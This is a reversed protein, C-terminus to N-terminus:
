RSKSKSCLNQIRWNSSIGLKGRITKGSSKKYFFFYPDKNGPPSPFKPEFFPFFKQSFSPRFTSFFSFFDRLFSPGFPFPPSFKREKFAFALSFYLPFPFKWPKCLVVKTPPVGILITTRNQKERVPLIKNWKTKQNNWSWRSRKYSHTFKWMSYAPNCAISAKFAM